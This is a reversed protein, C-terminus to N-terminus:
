GGGDCRIDHFRSGAPIAASRHFFSMDQCALVPISYIM